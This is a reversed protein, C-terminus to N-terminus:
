GRPYLTTRGALVASSLIKGRKHPAKFRSPEVASKGGIRRTPSRARNRPTRPADCAGSCSGVSFPWRLRKRM